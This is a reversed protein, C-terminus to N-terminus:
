ECLVYKFPQKNIWNENWRAVSYYVYEGDSMWASRMNQTFQEAKIGLIFSEKTYLYDKEWGELYRANFFINDATIWKVEKGEVDIISFTLEDTLAASQLEGVEWGHGNKFLVRMGMYITDPIEIM